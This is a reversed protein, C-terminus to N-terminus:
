IEVDISQMSAFSFIVTKSVKQKTMEEVARSYLKLQNSYRQTLITAADEPKVNRLVLRQTELHIM